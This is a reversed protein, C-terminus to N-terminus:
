RQIVKDKVWNELRHVALALATGPLPYPTAHEPQRAGPVPDEGLVARLVFCIPFGHTVVLITQEPRSLLTRFGACYRRAAAAQSEGGGPLCARVGHERVWARYEELPREELAGFRLDNLDPLVLTPVTRGALALSATEQVRQFDTTICLDVPEHVLLRGLERAQERGTATLGGPTAPNGNTM